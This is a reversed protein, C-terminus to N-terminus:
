QAHPDPKEVPSGNVDEGPLHPPDTM